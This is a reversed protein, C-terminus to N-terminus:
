HYIRLGVSKLSADVYATKLTSRNAHKMYIACNRVICNVINDMHQRTGDFAPKGIRKVGGRRALKKLASDNFVDLIDKTLTKKDGKGKGKGGKGKGSM